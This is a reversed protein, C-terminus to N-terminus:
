GGNCEFTPKDTVGEQAITLLVIRCKKKPAWAGCIKALKRNEGSETIKFTGEEIVRDAILWCIGLATEADMGDASASPGQLSAVTIGLFLFIVKM